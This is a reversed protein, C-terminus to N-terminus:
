GSAPEEWPLQDSLPCVSQVSRAIEEGLGELQRSSLRDQIQQFLHREEARIHGQLVEAFKKLLRIRELDSAEAIRRVLGEMLRHEAVLADILEGSQLYPRVAPFLVSEEVAFHGFLEAEALRAVKSALEDAKEPTPDAKLGRGILVSIALGHQHQHSLPVLSRDRHLSPHGMDGNYSRAM